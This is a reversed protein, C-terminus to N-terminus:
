CFFSNKPGISRQFGTTVWQCFRQPEKTYIQNGGEKGYPGGRKGQFTIKGESGIPFVTLLGFIVLNSPFARFNPLKGTNFPLIVELFELFPCKSWALLIIFPFFNFNGEEKPKSGGQLSRGLLEKGGPLFRYYVRPLFTPGPLLGLKLPQKAL